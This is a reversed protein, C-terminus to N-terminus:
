RRRLDRLAAEAAYFGCMGHVGGGPPTSSSCLYVGPVGVEYPRLTVRPRFVTQLGSAAGGVIDGGVVNLNAASLASPGSEVRAVVRDRFGPAFRGIQADILQGVDPGDAGSPVHAYAYVVQRGEPARLGDAVGQQCVVVFPRQPVRGAAVQGEAWAIEEMTGGVHVTGAGSVRSDAWPVPGDLLYDVKYAAAGYRWRLLARRVRSPMREGVLRVADWPGVDLMVVDADGVQRVDVVQCGTVVQGGLSELEAVLAATIAGSGGEAVPWGVAHGAASLVVGFASTCARSLPVFAHAASGAFLARAQVGSFLSRGLLTAPWLGRVGFGAMTVPHRPVRVVPGLFSEVVQDWGRVSPGLLRRWAVGDRGLEDATQGLSRQLVVAPRGVLPHALPVPAHLWRLGHKDLGCGRFFPSSVGFPHAAAGVDVVSGQGFLPVSRVSGGPVSAAEFVRVELGSRALHVAAALGNPGSGVVAAVGAVVVGEQAYGSGGVTRGDGSFAGSM